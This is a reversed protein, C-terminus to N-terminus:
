EDPTERLKIPHYPDTTEPIEWLIIDQENYKRTNNEDHNSLELPLELFPYVLLRKPLLDKLRRTDDNMLNRITM